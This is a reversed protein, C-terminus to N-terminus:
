EEYRDFVKSKPPVGRKHRLLSGKCFVHEDLNKELWRLREYAVCFGVFAGVFVGIGYWIEPLWTAVFSALGTVFCFLFATMLAGTLDNFYYLFIIAAYMIFLVFYGAALCPYIKLVLGDFGFRPFLIICLFFLIVSIIFQIRVLNMLEESLQRFMRKKALEIDMKRGGIVAESYAKYREHFHMEVRSIFIVSASLNTFMALYTAMDYSTVCVFTDVVVMRLDTTWFVFNHIYLGLTYLFNTLILKWYIRFYSLVHRYEGSNEKFYNRITALELSAITFFGVDLAVLMSFMKDCGFVKVLLVALAITVAMGLLFFFSIKKFDKCIFLYLMQYFVLVLAVYGCYGAFVFIASVQGTLYERICFVIGFICSFGLNLIMGVYFCPLIDQYKEEYIIDSMYRSLVSNFPAASLLAFIFIYLVTCAFLERQAYGVKSMDLLVQMSMIAGIVLIMPAITIITSYGMGIINTTLTNKNYIKNLKVGIGAM